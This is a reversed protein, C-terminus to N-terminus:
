GNIRARVFKAFCALHSIGCPLVNENQLKPIKLFLNYEESIFLEM